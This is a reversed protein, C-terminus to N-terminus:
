MQASYWGPMEGAKFRIAPPIIRGSGRALTVINAAQAAVWESQTPARRTRAKSDIPSTTPVADFARLAYESVTVWTQPIASSALIGGLSLREPSQTL